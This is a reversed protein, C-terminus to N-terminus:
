IRKLIAFKLHLHLKLSNSLLLMPFFNFFRVIFETPHYTTHKYNIHLILMYNYTVHSRTHQSLPPPSLHIFTHIFTLTHTCTSYLFKSHTPRIVYKNCLNHSHIHKCAADKCKRELPRAKRRNPVNVRGKRLVYMCVYLICASMSVYM